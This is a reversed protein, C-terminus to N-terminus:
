RGVLVVFLGGVVATAIIVANLLRQLAEAQQTNM